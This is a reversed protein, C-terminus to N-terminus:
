SPLRRLSSPASQRLLAACHRCTVAAQQTTVTHGSFDRGKGLSALRCLPLKTRDPNLAFNYHTAM